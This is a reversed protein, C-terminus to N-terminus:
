APAGSWSAQDDTVDLRHPNKYLDLLFVQGGPGTKQITQMYRSLRTTFPPLRDYDSSVSVTNPGTRIVTITVNSQGSGRADSIVDGRYVGKAVDALDPRPKPAAMVSTASLLALLGIALPAARM